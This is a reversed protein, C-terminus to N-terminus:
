HNGGQNESVPVTPPEPKANVLGIFNDPSREPDAAYRVCNRGASKAAYLAEDAAKLLSEPDQHGEDLGAVGFSATFRISESGAESIAHRLREALRLAASPPTDALIVAFEEGGIRAVVDIRRTSQELVRAVSRIVADGAPHGFTDNLKKFHDIDLLMLTLDRQYRQARAVAVALERDFARRNFLETLGDTLALKQSNQIVDLTFGLLAFLGVGTFVTPMFALYSLWLGQSDTRGLTVSVLLVVTSVPLVLTLWAILAWDGANKTDDKHYLNWVSSVIGAFVAATAFPAYASSGPSFVIVGIVPLLWLATIFGMFRANVRRGARLWLGSWLGVMSIAGLGNVLALRLGPLPGQVPMLAAVAMTLAMAAYGLAFALTVASGINRMALMLNAAALLLCISITISLFTLYADPM